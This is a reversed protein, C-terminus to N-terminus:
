GRNHNESTNVAAPMQSKCATTLQMDSICFPLNCFGHKKSM